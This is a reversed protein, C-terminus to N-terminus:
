GALCSFWVTQPYVLLAGAALAIGYPIGGDRRHLRVAWAECVLIHPLPVSRLTMFLTALMGGAVAVYLLYAFLNDFGVWLAIAALLKADGGGFWGGMFLLVGVALVALGAGVHSVAEWGDFGALWAAPAFALVIAASVRNPITLTFLDMAAGFAFAGPVLVLLVLELM